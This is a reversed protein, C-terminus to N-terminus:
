RTTGAVTNLNLALTGQALMTVTFTDTAENYNNNSAATATIVCGGVGLLTLAGTSTNVTCVNSPTATYTVTTQAGTPAMVTPAPSGFTM